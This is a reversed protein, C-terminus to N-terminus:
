QGTHRQDNKAKCWEVAYACRGTQQSLGEIKEEIACLRNNFSEQAVIQKETLAIFKEMITNINSAAKKNEQVLFYIAICALVLAGFPGIVQDMWSAHEPDVVSLMAISPNLM